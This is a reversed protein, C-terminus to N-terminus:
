DHHTDPATWSYQVLNPPPAYGGETFGRSSLLAKSADNHTDVYGYWEDQETQAHTILATAIGHRRYDPTVALRVLHPTAFYEVALMGVTTGEVVAAWAHDWPDCQLPTVGPTDLFFGCVDTSATQIEVDHLSSDQSEPVM